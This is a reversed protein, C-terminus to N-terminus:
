FFDSLVEPAGADAWVDESAMGLLDEVSLGPLAEACRYPRVSARNEAFLEVQCFLVHMGIQFVFCM